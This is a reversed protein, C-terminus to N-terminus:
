SRAEGERGSEWMSLKRGMAATFAFTVFGALAGVIWHSAYLSFNRFLFGSALGLVSGALGAVPITWAKNDWRSLFFHSVGAAVVGIFSGVVFASLGVDFNRPLFVVVYALAGYLFPDLWHGDRGYDVAVGKKRAEEEISRDDRYFYSLFAGVPAGIYLDTLLIVLFHEKAPPFLFAAAVALLGGTVGGWFTGTWVGKEMKLPFFLARLVIVQLLASGTALFFLPTFSARYAFALAVIVTLGNWGILGTIFSSPWSSRQRLVKPIM